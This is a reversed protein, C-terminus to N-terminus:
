IVTLPVFQMIDASLRPNGEDDCGKFNRQRCERALKQAEAIQQPTMKAAVADRIGNINGAAGALNSWMHARSYDQTVGLSFFYMGSIMAQSSPNGEEAAMRCWRFAGVLDEKVGKGDYYMLCLNYAAGSSGQAAAIEYSRVAEAYDGRQYAAYGDEFPGARAGGM